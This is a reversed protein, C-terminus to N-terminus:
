LYDRFHSQLSVHKSKKKKKALNLGTGALVDKAQLDDFRVPSDFEKVHLRFCERYGRDAQQGTDALEELTDKQRDILTRLIGASLLM